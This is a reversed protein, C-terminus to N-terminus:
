ASVAAIAADLDHFIPIISDIGSTVLVQEVDPNPKLLVMHGGKSKISKASLVITRIGMSAMFSVQALDVIVKRHSGQLVSFPLDIKEAGQIDLRGTLTVKSVGDALAAIAMDM